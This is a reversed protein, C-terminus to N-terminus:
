TRKEQGTAHWGICAECWYARIRFACHRHARRTATRSDFRRKGCPEVRRRRQSARGRITFAGDELRAVRAM